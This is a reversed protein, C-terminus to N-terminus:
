HKKKRKMKKIKNQTIPYRSQSRSQSVFIRSLKFAAVILWVTNLILFPWGKLQISYYILFSAGVINAINYFVTDQNFQKFFQDLTFAILIFCMGLVGILLNIM